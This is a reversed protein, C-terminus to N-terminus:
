GIRLRRLGKDDDLEERGPRVAGTSASGLLEDDARFAPDAASRVEGDPGDLGSLGAATATISWSGHRGVFEDAAQDSRTGACVARSRAAERGVDVRASACRQRIALLEQEDVPLGFSLATFRALDARYDHGWAEFTGPVVDTANKM